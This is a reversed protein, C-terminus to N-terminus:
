EEGEGIEIALQLNSNETKSKGMPVTKYKSEGVEV